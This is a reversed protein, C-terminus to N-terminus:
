GPLPVDSPFLNGLVKMKEAEPVTLLLHRDILGATLPIKNYHGSSVLVTM